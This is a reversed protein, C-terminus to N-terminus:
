VSQSHYEMRKKGYYIKKICFVEFTNKFKPTLDYNNM